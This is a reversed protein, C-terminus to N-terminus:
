SVCSSPGAEGAGDNDIIQRRSALWESFQGRGSLDWTRCKRVDGDGFQTESTVIFRSVTRGSM